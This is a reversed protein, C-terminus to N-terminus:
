GTSIVSLGSPPAAASPGFKSNSSPALLRPHYEAAPPGVSVTEGDKLVRVYDWNVQMRMHM